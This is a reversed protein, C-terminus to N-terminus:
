AASKEHVCRPESGGGVATPTELASEWSSKQLAQSAWIELRFLVSAFPVLSMPVACDKQYQSGLVICEQLPILPLRM